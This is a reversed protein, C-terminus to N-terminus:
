NLLGFDARLRWAGALQPTIDLEEPDKQVGSIFAVRKASM